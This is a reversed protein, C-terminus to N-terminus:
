AVIRPGLTDVFRQDTPALALGPLEEWAFWRLETHELAEPEGRIMARRFVILYPSGSDQYEALLDGVAYVDVNLEEALERAAAELDSEGAELKGGPFEWLGGHRKSPPRRGLLLRRGRQVVCAIVRITDRQEGTM